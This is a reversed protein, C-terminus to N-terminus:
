VSDMTFETRQHNEDHLSGVNQKENYKETEDSYNLENESHNDKDNAINLNTSPM